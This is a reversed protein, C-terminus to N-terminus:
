DDSAREAGFIITQVTEKEGDVTYEGRTLCYCGYFELPDGDAMSIVVPKDKVSKFDFKPGSPIVYDVSFQHRPTKAAHGTKNMLQVQVFQDVAHRKFNKTDDMKKGDIAIDCRSVYESM